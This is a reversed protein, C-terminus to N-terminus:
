GCLLLSEKGEFCCNNSLVDLVCTMNNEADFQHSKLLRKRLSCLRFQEIRKRRIQEIM